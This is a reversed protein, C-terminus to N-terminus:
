HILIFTMTLLALHSSYSTSVDVRSVESRAMLQEMLRGRSSMPKGLHAIQMVALAWAQELGM